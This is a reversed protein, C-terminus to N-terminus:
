WYGQCARRTTAYPLRLALACASYAKVARPPPTRPPSAEGLDRNEPPIHRNQRCMGGSFSPEQLAHRGGFRGARAVVCRTDSVVFFIFSGERVHACVRYANM